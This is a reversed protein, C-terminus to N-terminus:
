ANSSIVLMLDKPIIDVMDPLERYKGENIVLAVGMKQPWQVKYGHVRVAYKDDTKIAVKIVDLVSKFLNDLDLPNRGINGLAEKASEGAAYIDDLSFFDAMFFMDIEYFHYPKILETIGLEELRKNVRRLSREQFEEYEREVYTRGRSHGYRINKSPPVLDIFCQFNTTM